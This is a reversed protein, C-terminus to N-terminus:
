FGCELGAIAYHLWSFTYVEVVDAGGEITRYGVYLTLNTGLDRALTLAADEARGPGGALADADLAAKWGPAFRWASALHLLPVFGVDTKRSSTPGQRLRIEADRVKATFGTWWTWRRGEHLRYRYSLRYSNFQYAADVPTGPTYTKGAFAIMRDPVGTETISLPAFLARLAHREGARWELYVRGAPWAGTGVLDRLSFRTATAANPIQVDNRTQWVAGGEIRVSWRPVEGAEAPMAGFSAGSVVFLALLGMTSGHTRPVPACPRRTM